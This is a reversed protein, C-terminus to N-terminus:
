KKSFYPNKKNKFHFIISSNKIKLKSEFFNKLYKKYSEDLKDLMSGHIIIRLPQYGGPHAFNLKIKKGKVLPPSHKKTASYMLKTLKSSNIKKISSSFLNYCLNFIKNVNINYLASIFYVFFNPFHQLRSYTIKKFIKKEKFKILDWKNVLIITPIGLKQSYDIIRLDQKTINEKADILYIIINSTKITEYSKKISLQEILNNKNIKRKYIGATDVLNYKQKKKITIPISICDRTTNPHKETILRKEKILSNILTSKGANPKGIFGIKITKITKEKFFDNKKEIKIKKIKTKITDKILKSIGIRERVSIPFVKEFNLNVFKEYYISEFNLNEIKNIILITKKKNKKLYREIKKNEKFEEKYADVLFFILNSEKIAIMTQENIKKEIEIKTSLKLGGTDILIIKKENEKFFGYKRDRTVSTPNKKKNIISHSHNKTLLNFLKSKGVNPRGIIAIIFKNM